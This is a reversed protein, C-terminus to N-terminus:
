FGCMFLLLSDSNRIGAANTLLEHSCGRRKKRFEFLDDLVARRFLPGLRKAANRSQEEVASRGECLPKHGNEVVYDAIQDGLDFLLLQRLERAPKLRRRVRGGPDDGFERVVVINLDAARYELLRVNGVRFEDADGLALALLM